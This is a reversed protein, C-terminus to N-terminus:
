SAKKVAPLGLHVCLSLERWSGAPRVPRREPLVGVQEAQAQVWFLIGPLASDRWRVGSEICLLLCVRVFQSLFSKEQLYKQTATM